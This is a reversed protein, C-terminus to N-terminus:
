KNKLQKIEKDTLLRNVCSKLTSDTEDFFFNYMETEYQQGVEVRGHFTIDYGQQLASYIKSSQERNFTFAPGWYQYEGQLYNKHFEPVFFQDNIEIKQVSGVELDIHSPEGIFISLEPESDLYQLTSILNFYGIYKRGIIGAAFPFSLMCSDQAQEYRYDPFDSCSTLFISVLVSSALKLKIVNLKLLSKRVYKKM